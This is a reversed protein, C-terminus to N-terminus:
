KSRLISPPPQMGSAGFAPMPDLGTIQQFQDPEISVSVMDTEWCLLLNRVQEFFAIGRPMPFNAWNQALTEVLALEILGCAYQESLAEVFKECAVEEGSDLQYSSVIHKVRQQKIQAELTM